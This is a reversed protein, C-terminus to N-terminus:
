QYWTRSVVASIQGIRHDVIVACKRDVIRIAGKRSSPSTHHAWFEKPKAKTDSIPTIGVM